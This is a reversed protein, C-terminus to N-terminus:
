WSYLEIQEVVDPLCSAYHDNEGLVNTKTKGEKISRIQLKGDLKLSALYGEELAKRVREFVESSRHLAALRDGLWNDVLYLPFIIQLQKLNALTGGKLSSVLQDWSYETGYSRCLVLTLKELWQSKTTKLCKCMSVFTDQHLALSANAFVVRFTRLRTLNELSLNGNRIGATLKKSKGSSFSSSPRVIHM